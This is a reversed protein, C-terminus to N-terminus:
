PGLESNPLELAICFVNKDIFFDDGTFQFGNLFGLLDFFFPDSRMGAYFRYGGNESIVVDSGKSVPVRLFLPRGGPGLQTAAHGPPRPVSPVQARPVDDFPIRFSVDSVADGDNDVNIQYVAQTNFSGALTPALPNVDMVLISRSADGPKQFAYIDTIDISA